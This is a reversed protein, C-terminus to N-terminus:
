ASYKDRIQLYVIILGLCMFIVPLAYLLVLVSNQRMFLLPVGVLEFLIAFWLWLKSVSRNYGTVDKVAPGEKEYTFFAAPGKLSRCRIGIVLFVLAIASHILFAPLM